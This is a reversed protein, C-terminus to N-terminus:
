LWVACYGLNRLCAEPQVALCIRSRHKASPFNTQQMTSVWRALGLIGTAGRSFCQLRLKHMSDKEQGNALERKALNKLANEKSFLDERHM